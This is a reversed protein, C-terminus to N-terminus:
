VSDRDSDSPVRWQHGRSCTLGSADGVQTDDSYSHYLMTMDLFDDQGYGYVTATESADFHLKLERGCYSADPNVHPCEAVGDKGEATYGDIVPLVPLSANWAEWARQAYRQANVMAYELEDSSGVEGPGPAVEDPQGSLSYGGTALIVLGRARGPVAYVKTVIHGDIKDGVRLDALTHAM